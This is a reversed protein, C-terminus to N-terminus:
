NKNTEYQYLLEKSINVMNQIENKAMKNEDESKSVILSILKLFKKPSNSYMVKKFWPNIKPNELYEDPSLNILSDIIEPGIRIQMIENEFTDTQGYVEKIFDVDKNRFQERALSDEIGKIIEHLLIPFIIGKAVIKTDIDGENIEEVSVSGAVSSGTKVSMEIIDEMTFYSIDLMTMLKSYMEPLKPDINKINEIIPSNHYFYQGKKADGQVMANVVNRMQIHEEFEEEETPFDIDFAKEGYKEFDPINKKSNRKEPKMQFNVESFNSEDIGLSLSYQLWNEEIGTKTIAASLAIKKLEERHEKEIEIIEMTMLYAEMFLSRIKSVDGLNEKKHSTRANRVIKEFRNSTLRIIDDTGNKFIPNKVYLNTKSTIKKETSSDMRETFDEPYNFTYKKSM